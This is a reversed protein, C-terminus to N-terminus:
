RRCCFVATSGLRQEQFIRPLKELFVPDIEQMKVSRLIRMDPSTAKRLSKLEEQRVIV